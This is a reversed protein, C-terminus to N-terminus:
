LWIGGSETDGAKYTFMHFDQLAETWSINFTNMISHVTKNSDADLSNEKIQSVDQDEEIDIYDERSWFVIVPININIDWTGRQILTGSPKYFPDFKGTQPNKKSEYGHYLRVKLDFEKRDKLFRIVGKFGLPNDDGTIEAGDGHKSKNWPTTDAYLYDIEPVNDDAEATGDFTPKVNTPTFFHQHIVEQGNEVFQNNMLEGKSNYYNIFMLYVPAPTFKKGNMYEGNKQVYFKPQSNESLEWGKGPKLEYSMEQVRKLYKAPSEPNQHPGGVQQIENWDAHLHCEVLQITMKAPDEHLKNQTEDVPNVPDKSCSTFGLTVIIAAAAMFVTFVTNNKKSKM